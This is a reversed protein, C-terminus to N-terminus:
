KNIHTHTIPNKMKYSLFEWVLYLGSFKKRDGTPIVTTLSFKFKTVEGVGMYPYTLNKLDRGGIKVYSEM